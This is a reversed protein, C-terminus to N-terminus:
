WEGMGCRSHSRATRCVVSLSEGYLRVWTYWLRVWTSVARAVRKAIIPELVWLSVIFMTTVLQVANENMSTAGVCYAGALVTGRFAAASASGVACIHTLTAVGSKDHVRHLGRADTRVSDIRRACLVAIKAKVVQKSWMPTHRPALKSPGNGGRIKM